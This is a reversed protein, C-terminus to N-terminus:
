QYPSTNNDSITNHPAVPLTKNSLTIFITLTVVTLRATLGHDASTKVFTGGGWRLGDDTDSVTPVTDALM